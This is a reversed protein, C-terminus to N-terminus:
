DGGRWRGARGPSLIEDDGVDLGGAVFEESAADRDAFHKLIGAIHMGALVLWIQEASKPNGADIRLMAAVARESGEAIGVAVAPQELLDGRSQGSAHLCVRGEGRWSLKRGRKPARRRRVALVLFPDALM